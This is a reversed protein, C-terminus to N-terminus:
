YFFYTLSFLGFRIIFMGNETRKINKGYDNIFEADDKLSEEELKKLVYKLCIKAKQISINFEDNTIENVEYLKLLRETEKLSALYISELPDKFTDGILSSYMNWLSNFTSLFDKKYDSNKNLEDKIVLLISSSDDIISKDVMYLLSEIEEKTTNILSDMFSLLEEITLRKEENEEKMKQIISSWKNGLPAITNINNLLIGFSYIDVRRDYKGEDIEPAKYDQTGLVSMKANLSHSEEKLFGLDAIKVRYKRGDNKDLESAIDKLLINAEKIDRHLLGLSHLYKIGLAIQRIIYEINEVKLKQEDILKLFKLLDTDCLEM